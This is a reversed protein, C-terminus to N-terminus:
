CSFGYKNRLNKPLYQKLFSKVIEENSSGKLGAHSLASRSKRLILDGNSSISGRISGRYENTGRKIGLVKIM